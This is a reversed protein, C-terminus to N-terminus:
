IHIINMEILNLFYNFYLPASVAIVACIILVINANCKIISIPSKNNKKDFYM